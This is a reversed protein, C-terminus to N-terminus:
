IKDLAESALRAITHREMAGDRYVDIVAADNLLGSLAEKTDPVRVNGLLITTFGRIEPNSDQLLPIFYSSKLGIIDPRREGIRGLADLVEPLLSRDGMLRYLEPICGAYKDPNHCIIEGVASIYGWSSAASDKIATLLGQLNRSIYGPDKRDIVAYVRGMIEAARRSIVRDVSYLLRKLDRIIRKDQEALALLTDVQYDAVLAEVHMKSFPKHKRSSPYDTTVPGKNEIPQKPSEEPVDQIGRIPKIFLLTGNIQRGQYVRGHVIRHTEIDYHAVQKELYDEEPLMDFALGWDGKYAVVLADIMATGLNHGTVDCAYGAGCSCKGVPMETPMGM